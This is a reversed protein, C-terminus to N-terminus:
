QLPPLGPASALLDAVAPAPDHHDARTEDPRDIDPGEVPEASQDVIIQAGLTWACCPWFYGAAAWGGFNFINVSTEPTVGGLEAQSKALVADAVAEILVMKYRGTTGSTLLIHGGQEAEARPSEADDVVPGITARWANTALILPWGERTALAALDPWAAGDVTILNVPGLQLGEVVDISGCSVTTVGLSRLALGIIWADFLHNICLVAVCERRLPQRVLFAQAQAICGAMSRYSFAEGNYVLAVRDPTASAHAFISDVVTM